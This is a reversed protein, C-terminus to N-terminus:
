NVVPLAGGRPPLRRISTGFKTTEYTTPVVKLPTFLFLQKNLAKQKEPDIAPPKKEGRGEKAEKLALSARLEKLKARIAEARAAWKPDTAVNAAAFQRTKVPDVPPLKPLSNSPSLRTGGPSRRPALPDLRSWFAGETKNTSNNGTASLQQNSSKRRPQKRHTTVVTVTDLLIPKQPTPPAGIRELIIRSSGRKAPMSAQRKLTSPSVVVPELLLRGSGSRSLSPGPDSASSALQRPETPTEPAAPTDAEENVEASPAPPAEENGDEAGVDLDAEEEDDSSDDSDSDSDESTAEDDEANGEADAPKTDEAPKADEAEPKTDEAEGEPKADEGEPKDAPPEGLGDVDAELVGELDLRQAEAQEALKAAELELRKALEELRAAEEDALRKDEEAKRAREVAELKEREIRALREEEERKAREIAEQEKRIREAEEEERLRQLALLRERAREQRAIEEQVEREEDKKVALVERVLKGNLVDYETKRSDRSIQRDAREHQMKLEDVARRRAYEVSWTEKDKVRGASAAALEKRVDDANPVGDPPAGNALAEEIQRLEATLRREELVHDRWEVFSDIWDGEPINDRARTMAGIAATVAKRMEASLRDLRQQAITNRPNAALAQTNSAQRETILFLKEIKEILEEKADPSMSLSLSEAAALVQLTHDLMRATVDTAEEGDQDELAYHLDELLDNYEQEFEALEDAANKSKKRDDTKKMRVGALYDVTIALNELIAQDFRALEARPAPDDPMVAISAVAKVAELLLDVTEGCIESLEIAADPWSQSEIDVAELTESFAYMVTEGPPVQETTQAARVANILLAWDMRALVISREAGIALALEEPPEADMVPDYLDRLADRVAVVKEKVTESVKQYTKGATERTEGEANLLSRRAVANLRPLLTDRVFDPLSTVFTKIPEAEPCMEGHRDGAGRVVADRWAFGAAVVAAWQEGILDAKLCREDFLTVAELLADTKEKVNVNSDKAHSEATDQHDEGDGADAPQPQGPDAQKEDGGSLADTVDQEVSATGENPM